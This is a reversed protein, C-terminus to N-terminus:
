ANAREKVIDNIDSRPKLPRVVFVDAGSETWRSRLTTAAHAGAADNDEAIWLADVGALVPLSALNSASIMSWVPSPGFEPLARLSLASEIGEGVGLCSTVDADDTLKIAGGAIPGLSLRLSKGDVKVNDGDSTIATRHIALASNSVVDRVLAIMAPYRKEGFPCNGHYRLAVSNAAALSLGRKALYAAVPTGEAGAAGRWLRRAAEASSGDTSANQTRTIRQLSSDPTDLNPRGLLVRVHDRCAQWDDGAFSNVLFGDPAAPSFTVSLSRDRVSHGPGPCLIAGRVLDGGLAKAASALCTM